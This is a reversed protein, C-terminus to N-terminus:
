DVVYWSKTEEDWFQVKGYTSTFKGESYNNDKPHGKADPHAKLWATRRGLAAARAAEFERRQKAIIYWNHGWCLLLALPIIALDLFTGVISVENGYLFGGAISFNGGIASDANSLAATVASSWAAFTTNGLLGNTTTYNHLAMTAQEMLTDVYGYTQDPTPWLWYPSGSGIGSAADSKNIESWALATWYEANVVDKQTNVVWGQATQLYNGAQNLPYVKNAYTGGFQYSIFAVSPVVVLVLVFTAVILKAYNM